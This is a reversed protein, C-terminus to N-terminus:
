LRMVSSVYRRKPISYLLYQALDSSYGVALRLFRQALLLVL